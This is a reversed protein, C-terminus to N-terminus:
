ERGGHHIVYAVSHTPCMFHDGKDLVMINFNWQQPLKGAACRVEECGYEVPLVTSTGDKANYIGAVMIHPTSGQAQVMVLDFEPTPKKPEGHTQKAAKLVDMPESAILTPMFDTQKKCTTVKEPAASQEVKEVIDEGSECHMNYRGVNWWTSPENIKEIFGNSSHLGIHIITVSRGDRSRYKGTQNIAVTPKTPTVPNQPEQTPAETLTTKPEPMTIKNAGRPNNRAREEQEALRRDWDTRLRNLDDAIKSASDAAPAKMVIDRGLEIFPNTRGNLAWKRSNGSVNWHGHAATNTVEHVDVVRGNRTYYVGPETIRFAPKDLPAKTEPAKKAESEKAGTEQELPHMKRVLDYSSQHHDPSWRGDLNWTRNASGDMGRVPQSAKDAPAITGVIAVRGNRMMYWGPGDVVFPIAAIIDQCGADAIGHRDWRRMSMPGTDSRLWGFASENNVGLIDAIGGGRLKYAGPKEISFVEKTESM